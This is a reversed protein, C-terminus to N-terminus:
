AAEWALIVKSHPSAGGLWVSACPACPEVLGRGPVRQLASHGRVWGHCQGSGLAVIYPHVEMEIALGAVNGGVAGHGGQEVVFAQGFAPYGHFDVALDNWAALMGHVSQCFAVAHFYDVRQAAASGVGRQVAHWAHTPRPIM